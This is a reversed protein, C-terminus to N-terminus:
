SGGLFARVHSGDVSDRSWDIAGAANLKTLLRHHLADWVGAQQWDRLRRWCTM